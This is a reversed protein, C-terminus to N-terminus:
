KWWPELGTRFDTESWTSFLVTGSENVNVHALALSLPAPGRVVKGVPAVARRHCANPRQHPTGRPAPLLAVLCRLPVYALTCGHALM